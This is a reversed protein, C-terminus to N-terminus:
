VRVQNKGFLTHPGPNPVGGVVGVLARENERQTYQQAAYAAEMIVDQLEPSVKEFTKNNMATHETGCFFRLDVAQSLVPSLGGYGAAGMWTEAGDILRSKLGDVTEEWALPVPGLDMLEM